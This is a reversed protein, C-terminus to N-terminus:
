AQSGDQPHPARRTERINHRRMRSRLELPHERYLNPDAADVEIGGVTTKRKWIRGPGDDFFQRKGGPFPSTPTKHLSRRSRTPFRDVEAPSDSPDPNYSRTVTLDRGERKAEFPFPKSIDVEFHPEIPLENSFDHFFQAGSPANSIKLRQGRRAQRGIIVLYHPDHHSTPAAANQHVTM